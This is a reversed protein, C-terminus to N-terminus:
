KDKTDKTVEAADIKTDKAGDIKVGEAGKDDIKVGEAGGDDSDASDASDDSDTDSGGEGDDVCSGSDDCTIHRNQKGSDCDMCWVRIDTNTITIFFRKESTDSLRWDVDNITPELKHEVTTICEGKLTDYICLKDQSCVLLENKTVPNYSCIIPLKINDPLKIPMPEISKEPDMPDLIDIVELGSDGILLIHDSNSKSTIKTPKINSKTIYHKDVLIPSGNMNINITIIQNNDADDVIISLKSKDANFSMGKCKVSFDHEEFPTIREEGDETESLKKEDGGQEKVEKEDDGQEKVKTEDDGQEKVEPASLEKETDKLISEAAAGGGQRNTNDDDFDDFDMDFDNTTNGEENDENYKNDENDEADFDFIEENNEKPKEDDKFLLIKFKDNDHYGAFILNKEWQIYEISKSHTDLNVSVITINTFKNDKSIEEESSENGNYLLRCVMTSTKRPEYSEDIKGAVVFFMSGEAWDVDNIESCETELPTTLIMEGTSMRYICCKGNNYGVLIFQGGPSIKGCTPQAGNMAKITVLNTIKEDTSTITESGDTNGKNLLSSEDLKKDVLTDKPTTAVVPNQATAAAPTPATTIAPNPTTAAVPNPTPINSLPATSTNQNLAKPLNNDLQLSAGGSQNHFEMHQKLEFYKSKYKRYKHIWDINHSM